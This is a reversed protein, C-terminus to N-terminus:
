SDRLGLRQPFEETEDPPMDLTSQALSRAHARRLLFHVATFVLLTACLHMTSSEIWSEKYVVISVFIPFLVFYRFVAIPLDNVSGKHLHTFPIARVSFLLIDSLLFSLGVAILLQGIAVSPIKLSAPSLTQLLLATGLSLTLASLTIWISMGALHDSRSRGILVGFLWSGRRDVPASLVSRLGVVTFFVMIPIAARIGSPLLTLYIHGPEVRLIVMQALTLAVSLGGFMALTVRQRQSRLITQSIFHFVARKAPHRLITGHLLRRIWGSTRSATATAATGEILQRVRRRYALPYTLVTCALLFLLTYCGTRALLHFIAPASAGVFLCEYVGLFWFPPFYRIAPSGSTLLPQVLGAITPCLLLVALLLMISAGQLLPTVRRFIREGVTNLLVGQISLFCAAAFMGSMTVAIFHAFLHRPFNRQEAALPFFLTGLISTGIQVLCLFIALALVRAFFLQRNPIPLISLVFIDLIDPFLLDWEYVTVAGMVIFSYMVYFYHDGVQPWFPRHLPAPPFAHYAPFLFLSVLLTPLAVACAIQMVRKTEDDSALLENNFFRNLIHRVLIEFQSRERITTVSQAQVGLSLVPHKPPAFLGLRDSM